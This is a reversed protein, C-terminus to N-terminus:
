SLSPLGMRIFKIMVMYRSQTDFTLVQIVAARAEEFGGFRLIAYAHYLSVATAITTSSFVAMIRIKQAPSLKVKWVLRLPAAVLIADTMVDTIVQAIAVNRGLDCQPAPTDKWGPENECTWFVQAFLVAWACAFSCGACVLVRRFHGPASLRITATLCNVAYFFQDLMYYLAIKTTHSYSSEDRFHLEMAAIFLIFCLSAMFAWFDDWWLQRKYTRVTLRFATVCLAFIPLTWTLVRLEKFESAVSAM